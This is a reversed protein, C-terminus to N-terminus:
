AMERIVMELLNLALDGRKDYKAAYCGECALNRRETVGVAINL